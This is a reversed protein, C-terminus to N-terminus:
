QATSVQRNMFVATLLSFRATHNRECGMEKGIDEWAWHVIVFSKDANILTWVLCTGNLQEVSQPFLPDRSTM